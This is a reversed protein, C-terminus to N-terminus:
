VIIKSVGSTEGPLKLLIFSQQSQKPKNEKGSSSKELLSVPTKGHNLMTNNAARSTKFSVKTVTEYM